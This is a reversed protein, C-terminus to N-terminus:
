GEVSRIGDPRWAPSIVTSGRTSSELVTGYTLSFKGYRQNIEDMAVTSLTKKREEEFLPLQQDLRTLNTIRVGLLRIPQIIELSDFIMAVDNFIESSMNTPNKRSRQRGITTFDAFRVTLHVSKGAVHYRRARQGVMEALQLLHKMVEHRSDIDQELTMSHGVSKADHEQPNVPSNDIGRGMQHLNQGVIGFRRVLRELPYRGLEGCSRIGLMALEQGLKRGIGCLARVPTRELVGHLNEQKIITLGDPKQMDSALKAMLKNPAIGISCTIGFCQSIRTKIQMAISEPSGFLTLSSTIDMWAEDISFPEVLPTYEQLMAMILTSTHIYKRNDGVIFIIEPCVAKAQWMNMGTKVGFARAEYSSTTVVTRGQGTVAIARGKLGPNAAQEVSAFFANMDIHLITREFM